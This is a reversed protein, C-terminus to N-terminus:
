GFGPLVFVQLRANHSPIAVADLGLGRCFAVMEVALDSRIESAITLYNLGLSRPEGLPPPGLSGDSALARAQTGNGAGEPGISGAATVSGQRATGALLPDDTRLPAQRAETGVREAASFGARYGVLYVAIAVVIMVAGAALVIGMPLRVARAGGLAPSAGAAARERRAEYLTKAGRAM